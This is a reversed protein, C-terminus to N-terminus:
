IYHNNTQKRSAISISAESGAITLCVGVMALTEKAPNIVYAGGTSSPHSLHLTKASAFAVLKRSTSPSRRFEKQVTYKKKM